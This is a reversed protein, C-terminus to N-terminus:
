HKFGVLSLSVQIGVGCGFRTTVIQGNSWAMPQKSSALFGHFLRFSVVVESTAEPLASIREARNNLKQKSRGFVYLSGRSM